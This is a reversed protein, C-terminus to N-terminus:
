MFWTTGNDFVGQQHVLNGQADYDYIYSSWEHEDAADWGYLTHSSIPTALPCHVM